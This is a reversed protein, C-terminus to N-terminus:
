VFSMLQNVANEAEAEDDFIQFLSESWVVNFCGKYIKNFDEQALNEFSVSWPRRIVGGNPLTVTEFFGADVMIKHRYNDPCKYAEPDARRSRKRAMRDIVHQAIDNGFQDFLEPKGAQKCFERAVERAIWDEPESVLRMYPSWYMFGLKMLAFFKRHHKLNRAKSKPKIAVVRGTLNKAQEQDENTAYSVFGGGGIVALIENPKTRKQISQTM